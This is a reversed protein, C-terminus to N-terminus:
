STEKKKEKEAAAKEADRKKAAEERQQRIIALRALDARAEETKGQQHLQQYRVKAQQKELEERERRSLQTAGDGMETVKKTTRGGLRNPNEVEILHAVGKHKVVEDEEESSEEESSSPPLDGPQVEEEDDNIGQRRKWEKEREKKEEQVKLEDADTFHRRQGKHTKKNGRPGGRPM